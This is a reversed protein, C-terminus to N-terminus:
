GLNWTAIKDVFLGFDVLFIMENVDANSPIEFVVWGERTIGPYVKGGEYKGEDKMIFTPDIQQGNYLIVMGYSAPLYESDGANNTATIYMWLYKKGQPAENIYQFNSASWEYSNTIDYRLTTFDMDSYTVTTGLPLNETKPEQTPSPTEIPTSDQEINQVQPKVEPVEEICGLVLLTLVLIILFAFKSSTL